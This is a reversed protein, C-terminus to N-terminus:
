APELERQTCVTTGRPLRDGVRFKGVAELVIFTYGPHATALRMAEREATDRYGHGVRPLRDEKNWVMYFARFEDQLDEDHCMM